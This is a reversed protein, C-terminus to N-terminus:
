SQQMGDLFVFGFLRGYRDSSAGEYELQLTQGEALSRLVAKSEDNTEIGALRLEKGDELILTRGEGIRAVRAVSLSTFKCTESAADATTCYILFAIGWIPAWNITMTRKTSAM